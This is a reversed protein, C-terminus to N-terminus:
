RSAPIVARFVAGAIERPRDSLPQGQHDCDIKVRQIESLHVLSQEVGIVVTGGTITERWCSKMYGLVISGNSGLKIVKGPRVYDMFEVEVVNGNVQEVVAVPAQATQAHAPAIASLATGGVLALSTCAGAYKQWLTM